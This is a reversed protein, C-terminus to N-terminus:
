GVSILKGGHRVMRGMQTPNAQMDQWKTSGRGSSSASGRRTQGLPSLLDGHSKPTQSPRTQVKNKLGFLIAFLARATRPPSPIDFIVFTQGAKARGIHEGALKEMSGGGGMYARSAPFSKERITAM